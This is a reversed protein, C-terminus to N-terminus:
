KGLITKVETAILAANSTLLSVSAQVDAKGVGNTAYCALLREVLDSAAVIRIQLGNLRVRTTWLTNSSTGFKAPDAMATVYYKGWATLLADSSVVATYDAKEVTNKFSACGALSLALLALLPWLCIGGPPKTPTVTPPKEESVLPNTQVTETPDEAGFDLKPVPHKSIFLGVSIVGSVLALEGLKRLDHFNFTDPAIVMAGVCNGAAGLFSAIINYIWWEISLLNKTNM